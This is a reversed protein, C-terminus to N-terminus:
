RRRLSPHRRRLSEPEVARSGWYGGALIAVGAVAAMPDVAIGGTSELIAPNIETANNLFEGSSFFADIAEPSLAELVKGSQFFGVGSTRAKGAGLAM